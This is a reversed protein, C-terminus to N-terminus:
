NTQYEPGIDHVSYRVCFTLIKLLQGTNLDWHLYLARMFFIVPILCTLILRWQKCCWISDSDILIMWTRNSYLLPEFDSLWWVSRWGNFGWSYNFWFQVVYFNISIKEQWTALHFEWFLAQFFLCLKIGTAATTFYLNQQEPNPTRVWLWKFFLDPFQLLVWKTSLRNLKWSKGSPVSLSLKAEVEPHQEETWLRWILVTM